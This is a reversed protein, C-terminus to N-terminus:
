PFNILIEITAGEWLGSEIKFEDSNKKMNQLGMGAGWGM